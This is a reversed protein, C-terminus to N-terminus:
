DGGDGLDIETVDDPDPEELELPENLVLTRETEDLDNEKDGGM